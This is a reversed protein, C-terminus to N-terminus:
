MQSWSGGREGGVGGGPDARIGLSSTFVDVDKRRLGQWGLDLDLSVPRRLGKHDGEHRKKSTGEVQHGKFKLASASSSPPLPPPAHRM